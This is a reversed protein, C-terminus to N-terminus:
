PKRGLYGLKKTGPIPIVNEQALLWALSLQAASCNKKKALKEIARVFCLNEQLTEPQFQPLDSRFDYEESKKFLDANKIKGSLLGRALPGWAVFAIGLKKCIPLVAEAQARNMISYETQVAILSSGLVKYAREITEADVESLGVYRIKGENILEVMAGM